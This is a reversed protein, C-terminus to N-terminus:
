LHLLYYLHKKCDGVIEKISALQNKIKKAKELYDEVLGGKPLKIPQLTPIIGDL